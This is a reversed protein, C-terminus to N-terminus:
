VVDEFLIFIDINHKEYPNRSKETHQEKSDHGSM